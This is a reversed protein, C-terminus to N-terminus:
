LVDPQEQTRLNQPQCPVVDQTLGRRSTNGAGLLRVKNKYRNELLSYLANAQKLVAQAQAQTTSPTTAPALVGTQLRKALVDQLQCEPRLADKPWRKM